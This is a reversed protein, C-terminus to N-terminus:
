SSSCNRKLCEADLTLGRQWCRAYSVIEQHQDYISVSSADAKITLHHGVYRPSVCYRSGDFSLRIDKHVLAEATDRAIVRLSSCRKSPRRSRRM